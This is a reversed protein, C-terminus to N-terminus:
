RGARGDPELGKVTRAALPKLGGAPLGLRAPLLEIRKGIVQGPGPGLEASRPPLYRCALTLASEADGVATVLVLEEDDLVLVCVPVQRAATEGVRTYVAALERGDVVAVVREWGRPFLVQDAAALLPSRAPARGPFRHVSVKLTRVAGAAARVEPPVQALALGARALALLAPGASVQLSTQWEGPLAAVLEGHLAHEPEPAPACGIGAILWAVAAWGPMVRAGTSRRVVAAVIAGAASFTPRM